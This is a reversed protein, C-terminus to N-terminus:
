AGVRDAAARAPVMGRLAAALPRHWLGVFLYLVLVSRFIYLLADRDEFLGLAYSAAEVTFILAVKKPEDRFAIALLPLLAWYYSAPTLLVFLLPAALAVATAASAGRALLVTAALVLPALVVLQARHILSRREWLARLEALDVEAPGPKWALVQTLGVLNPAPTSAHIALDERFERWHDLGRPLLAASAAGVVVLTLLFGGLLRALHRPFAARDKWEWLGAAIPGVLFFAPFIRLVVAVGFLAGGAAARGRHLACVGMLSAALWLQRLFSGGTWAFGAGFVLFFHTLAYLLARRGFTRGVMTFAAALLLPDILTLAVVGAHSGAPVLNALPGALLPWAPSPNFGHDRLIGSYLPGGLRERFYTVDRTLEAWREADFRAKVPGSVLLLESSPVLENTDLDRAEDTSLAGTTEHEARVMAVYLDGYDLERLYKGGLYYHAVDPYHVFTREGHFAFFNLYVVGSAIALVTWWRDYRRDDCAAAVGLHRAFAGLAGAAALFIQLRKLAVLDLGARPVALIAAVLVLAGATWRAPRSRVLGLRWALWLAPAAGLVFLPVVFNRV